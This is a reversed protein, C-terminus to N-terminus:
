VGSHNCVGYCEYMIETGDMMYKQLNFNELPFTIMQKENVYKKLSIILIKPAYIFTTTITVEEKKRNKRKVM